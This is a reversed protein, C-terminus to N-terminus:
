QICSDFYTRYWHIQDFRFTTKNGITTLYGKHLNQRECYINLNVRLRILKNEQLILSNPRYFRSALM